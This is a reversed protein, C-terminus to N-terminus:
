IFGFWAANGKKENRRVLKILLGTKALWLKKKYFVELYTSISTLPAKIKIV